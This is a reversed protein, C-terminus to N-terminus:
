QKDCRGAMNYAISVEQKSKLSGANGCGGPLMSLM